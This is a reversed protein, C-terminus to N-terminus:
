CHNSPVTHDTTPPSENYRGFFWKAVRASTAPPLDEMIQAVANMALIEPDSVRRTKPHGTPQQQEVLPTRSAVEM